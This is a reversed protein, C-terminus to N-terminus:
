TVMRDLVEQIKDELWVEFPQSSRLVEVIQEEAEKEQEPSEAYLDPRITDIFPEGRNFALILRTIWINMHTCARTFDDIESKINARGIKKPMKDAISRVTDIYDLLRSIVRYMDKKEEKDMSGLTLGSVNQKLNDIISKLEQKTADGDSFRTIIADLQRRMSHINKIREEDTDATGSIHQGLYLGYDPLMNVIENLRSMCKRRKLYESRKQNIIDMQLHDITDTVDSFDMGTNVLYQQVTSSFERCFYLAYDFKHKGLYRTLLKLSEQVQEYTSYEDKEKTWIAVPDSKKDAM